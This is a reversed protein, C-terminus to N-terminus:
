FKTINKVNNGGLYYTDNNYFATSGFLKGPFTGVSEVEATNISYKYVEGNYAGNWGGILYISDEGDYVASHGYLPVPLRSETVVWKLPDSYVFQALASILCLKVLILDM